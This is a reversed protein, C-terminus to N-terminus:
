NQVNNEGKLAKRKKHFALLYDGELPADTYEDVEFSALVEGFEDHLAHVEKKDCFALSNLIDEHIKTIVEKPQQPFEKVYKVAVTPEYGMAESMLDAIAFLEGYKKEREFPTNLEGKNELELYYDYLKLANGLTMNDLSSTEDEYRKLTVQSVGTAKSIQYKTIKEHTILKRIAERIELTM